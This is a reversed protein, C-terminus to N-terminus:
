GAEGGVEGGVVFVASPLSEYWWAALTADRAMGTDPEAVPVPREGRGEVELETAKSLGVDSWACCTYALVRGGEVLWVCLWLLLLM